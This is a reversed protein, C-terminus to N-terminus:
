LPLVSVQASSFKVVPIVSIAGLQVVMVFGVSVAISTEMESVIEQSIDDAAAPYKILIPVVGPPVSNTFM